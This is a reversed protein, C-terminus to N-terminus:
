KVAIAQLITGQNLSSLTDYLSYVIRQITIPAQDVFKIELPSLTYLDTHSFGSQILASNLSNPNFYTVHEPPKIQSWKGKKVKAPLGGINPTEFLAIGKPKLLKRIKRLTNLPDVLHEIFHYCTILDYETEPINLSVFDGYYFMIKSDRDDVDIYRNNSSIETASVKWGKQAAVYAFDGDGCAVDLLKPTNKELIDPKKVSLIEILQQYRKQAFFMGSMTSKTYNNRYKPSCYFEALESQTPRPLSFVLQCEECQLLMYNERNGWTKIQSQKCIPCNSNNMNSTTNM